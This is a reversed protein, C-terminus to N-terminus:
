SGPQKNDPPKNANLLQNFLKEENEYLTKDTEQIAKEILCLIKELDQLAYEVNKIAVSKITNSDIMNSFNNKEKHALGNRIKTLHEQITDNNKVPLHPVEMNLVNHFDIVFVKDPKVASFVNLLIGCLFSYEYDKFISKQSKYMLITRIAFVLNNNYGM